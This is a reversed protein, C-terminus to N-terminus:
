KSHNIITLLCFYTNITNAPIVIITSICVSVFARKKKQKTALPIEKLIKVHNKKKTHKGSWSLVDLSKITDM